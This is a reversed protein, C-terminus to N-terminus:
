QETSESEINTKRTLKSEKNHHNQLKLKEQEAEKQAAKKEAELQKCNEDNAQNFMRVFTLLTSVVQEYPCRAPDEGFYLILADVSKGVGSYLSALSKVEGEASTLFKKLSKRFRKSVHGDRKCMRKEQIVKELGKTISQMEEALAKLQVKSAPELSGLEKSFDLLEPLKDALVKCLYHMLTTKNNRARTEDLKLISDLRFGVAAGRSTGQNLANGLSLITQMVRRFKVSSRIQEVSLYVIKLNACLDSIQTSFQLKYSFVRLKAEARPVKMLEMFFLECKGLNDKEGKYGKIQEMEEKTPCFKALNDVMEIDMASDDLALVYEM